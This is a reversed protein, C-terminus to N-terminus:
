ALQKSVNGGTPPQTSDLDFIALEKAAKALTFFRDVAAPARVLMMEGGNRHAAQAADLIAHIGASDIFTLERLDLVVLRAQLLVDHLTHIMKACSSIDLEGGARVWAASWGAESSCSFPQFEIPAVGTSSSAATAQPM